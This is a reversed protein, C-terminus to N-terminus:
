KKLGAQWNLVVTFPETGGQPALALFRKGDATSDWPGGSYVSGRVVAMPALPQPKGARFTPGGAIEVAMVRGDPYSRYYLERGDGRWRPEFGGGSSIQWQGGAKVVTGAPEMSFSRVYIEPHGRPGAADSAYAVWHGDPSFHAQREAFETALFSVPKRDGVMPLVWIDANAGPRVVTYLLFRGDRSWNTAHKVESSKLMAEADKASSAPKQYLDNGSTFAIRDGEPSWVPDTDHESAFTFRTSTERSLDLMWINSAL